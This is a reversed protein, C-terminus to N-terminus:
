WTITASDSTKAGRALETGNACSVGVVYDYDGTGLETTSPDSDPGFQKVLRLFRDGMKKASDQSTACDVVMVLSVASGNQEITMDAVAPNTLFSSIVLEKVSERLTRATSSESASSDSATPAAAM